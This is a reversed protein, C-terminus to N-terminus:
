YVPCYSIYSKRFSLLRIACGWLLLFFFFFFFFAVWTLFRIRGIFYFGTLAPIPHYSSIYGLIEKFKFMCCNQVKVLNFSLTFLKKKWTCMPLLMIYTHTKRSLAWSQWNSRPVVAAWRYSHSKYILIFVAMSLYGHSTSLGCVYVADNKARTFFPRTRSLNSGQGWHEFFWSCLKFYFQKYTHFYM